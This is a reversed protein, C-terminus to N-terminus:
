FRWRVDFSVKKAMYAYQKPKKRQKEEADDDPNSKIEENEDADFDSDVFDEEVQDEKM